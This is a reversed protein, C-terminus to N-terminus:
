RWPTARNARHVEVIAHHTPVQRMFSRRMAPDSIRDAQEKLLHYASEECDRARLNRTARLVQICALCVRFPERTGQLCTLHIQREKPPILYQLIQDAYGTAQSLKDQALAAQALGALPELAPVRQGLARYIALARGYATAAEATMGLSLLAHGSVTLAEAQGPRNSTSEALQAAQHSTEWAANHDGVHHALLAKGTLAQAELREDGLGRSIRLAQEFHTQAEDYLGVTDTVRGLNYCAMAEGARNGNQRCTQQSRELYSRAAAYDGYLMLVVGLDSLLNAEILPEDMQEYLQLAAELYDRAAGYDSELVAISGLNSLSTVALERIREERAHHLTQEFQSRAAQAVAALRAHDAQLNLFRAQGLLLQGRMLEAVLGM